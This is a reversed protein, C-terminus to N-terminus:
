LALTSNEIKVFGRGVLHLAEEIYHLRSGVNTRVPVFVWFFPFQSNDKGSFQHNNNCVAVTSDNLTNFKISCSWYTARFKWGPCPM